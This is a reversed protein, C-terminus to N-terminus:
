GVWHAITVTFNIRSISESGKTSKGESNLAVVKIGIGAKGSTESESKTTVAIDFRIGKGENENGGPKLLFANSETNRSEKYSSNAEKLGESIELLSQRIFDKLEV